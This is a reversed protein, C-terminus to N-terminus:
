PEHSFIEEEPLYRHTNSPSWLSFCLSCSSPFGVRLIEKYFGPMRAASDPDSYKIKVIVM